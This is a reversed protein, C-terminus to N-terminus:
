ASPNGMAKAMEEMASNYEKAGEMNTIKDFNDRMDEITMATGTPPMM